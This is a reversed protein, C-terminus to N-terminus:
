WHLVEDYGPSESEGVHMKGTMLVDLDRTDTSRSEHVRQRHDGDSSDIGRPRDLASAPKWNKSKGRIGGADLSLNVM